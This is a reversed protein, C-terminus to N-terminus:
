RDDYAIPLEADFLAKTRPFLWCALDFITYTIFFAAAVDISYHLHGLLVIVAFFASWALFIYRLAPSRWFVLALMFTVGTHGSFFLDGGGFMMKTITAGFDTSAPIPYPAIHTLSIFFSRIFYFLSLSFLAFPAKRPNALLLVVVFVVLMLTGYVFLGDVDFVPINSLVIDTVPNSASATAYAIADFVVVVSAAFAIGAFLTMRRAFADRWHVRHRHLIEHHPARRHHKPVHEAM